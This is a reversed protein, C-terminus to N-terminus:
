VETFSYETTQVSALLFAGAPPWRRPAKQPAL